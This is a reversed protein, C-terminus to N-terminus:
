CLLTIFVDIVKKFQLQKLLFHTIVPYRLQIDM